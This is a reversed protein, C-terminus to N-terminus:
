AMRGAVGAVPQTPDIVRDPPPLGASINWALTIRQQSGRYPHVFHLLEAPFSLMLGPSMEPKIARTPRGPRSPCCFPVRPDLLAFQGNNEGPAGPELYYVVSWDSEYHCHPVSYDGDEIVNAWRDVVHAQSAAHTRCCLLLARQSLLELEPLSWTGADRIKVGGWGRQNPPLAAGAKLITERAPPHVIDADQFRTGVFRPEVLLQIPQVAPWVQTVGNSLPTMAAAVQDASSVTCDLNMM